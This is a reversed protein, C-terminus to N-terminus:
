HGFLAHPNLDGRRCGRLYVPRASRTPAKPALSVPNVMGIPAVVVEAGNTAAYARVFRSVDISPHENSESALAILPETLFRCPYM